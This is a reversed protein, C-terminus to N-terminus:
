SLNKGEMILSEGQQGIVQAKILSTLVSAFLDETSFNIVKAIMHFVPTSLFWKEVDQMDSKQLELMKFSLLSKAVLLANKEPNSSLYALREYARKLVQEVNSFPAGHGPIVLKADLSDILDLTNKVESFGGEDYLEHFVSGFGNEWLADASILIGWQEQFLIISHHDHGPSALITWENAGLQIKEGPVLRQNPIFQPCPQGIVKFSLQDLDWNAAMNWSAEPVWIEFGMEDQMAHNGGCHDSHLHTNILKGVRCEAVKNLEHKVLNITQSTHMYFGSDVVDLHTDSQLFIQNASLWGRVAVHVGQPLQM